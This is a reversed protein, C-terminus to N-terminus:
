IRAPVFSRMFRKPKRIGSPITGTTYSGKFVNEGEIRIEEFSAIIEDIVPKAKAYDEYKFMMRFFAQPGTKSLIYFYTYENPHSIADPSEPTRYLSIKQAEAERHLLKENERITIHNTEIYHPNLYYQNCYNDIFYWVDTYPAWERTVTVTLTDNYAQILEPSKSIDFRMDEPFSVMYGKPRDILVQHGDATAIIEEQIAPQTDTVQHYIKTLKNEARYLFGQPNQFFGKTILVLPRIYGRKWRKQWLYTVM